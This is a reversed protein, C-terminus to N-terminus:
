FREAFPRLDIEHTWCSRDQGALSLYTSAVADADMRPTTGGGLRRETQPADILGDLVVHAVHIGSPGYERALSQALGRLAFKASAFAASGANGRMGATAGTLILAGAGAAIMHPLVLRAVTMAGLCTVRWVQEFEDEVLQDFPKILLAHANHVVVAIRGLDPALAAAVDAPRTLDACRHVYTGGAAAVRRGIEAAARDSRALGVVDYGAQAFTAAIGAGLGAAIGTVLLLPRQGKMPTLDV